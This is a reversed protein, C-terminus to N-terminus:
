KRKLDDTREELKEIMVDMISKKSPNIRKLTKVIRPFNPRQKTNAAWMLELQMVLEDDLADVGDPRLEGSCLYELIQQEPRFPFVNDYATRLTFIEYTVLSFSYVDGQKTPPLAENSMLEPAVHARRQFTM